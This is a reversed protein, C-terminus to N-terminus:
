SIGGRRRNNNPDKCCLAWALRPTATVTSFTVAFGPRTDFDRMLGFLATTATGASNSIIKYLSNSMSSYVDTTATNDRAGYTICYQGANSYVFSTGAALTAASNATLTLSTGSGVDSVTGILTGNTQYLKDSPFLRFFASLTGTVLTGASNTQITGTGNFYTKDATREGSFMSFCDVEPSNQNYTTNSISTNIGAGLVVRPVFGSSGTGVFSDGVAPSTSLEILAWDTPTSSKMALFEYDLLPSPNQNNAAATITWGGTTFSGITFAYPGLNLATTYYAIATNSYMSGLTTNTPTASTDNHYYISSQNLPLRTAAGYGLRFDDIGNAGAAVFSSAVIVVDPQFSLASYNITASAGSPFGTNGVAVTLDDGGFFTMITDLYSGAQATGTITNLQFRDTTFVPTSASFFLAGATNTTQFIRNSNNSRRVLTSGNAALGDMLTMDVYRNVLTSSSASDTSGIFAIGVNRFQLTTDFTDPQVANQEVYNIICAKPIGFGPYLDITVAAGATFEAPYFRRRVVCSKM